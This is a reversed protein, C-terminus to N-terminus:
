RAVGAGEAGVQEFLEVFRATIAPWGFRAARRRSAAAMQRVLARNADLLELHRALTAVDAWEFTLGNVGEEVLDRTGGTRSLVLPLGAALGELAALSLGENFSPLAFVHARRYWGAIEERPVYGAFEVREAVNMRRAQEVLAAHMDGTGVLVLRVDRGRDALRRVAEILHQQGKREILRAACIVRLPGTDPASNGAHFQELDVGNPIVTVDVGSDVAHIMEVEEACKAIVAAAGRWTARILPQLLPYIARYRREFGPIDPGSVWVLYALGLRRLALAVAGAPLASWALCFDYRRARHLNRALPLAQAAYLILERNTSHHLNHNWVPVRYMTVREAFAEVEYRGALGATVVDIEFEARGALLRLVAQHTTGMGGGLPPFENNLMLIRM